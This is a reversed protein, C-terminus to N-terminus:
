KGRPYMEYIKEVTLDLIENAYDESCLLEEQCRIYWAIAEKIQDREKAAEDAYDAESQIIMVATKARELLTTPIEEGKGNVVGAPHLVNYAEIIEQKLKKNEELLEEYKNILELETM